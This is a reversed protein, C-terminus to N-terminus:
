GSVTEGVRKLWIERWYPYISRSCFMRYCSLNGGCAVNDLILCAGPLNMMQGTKENIIKEVRRLVRYSGNECFPVMEVDFFLGRNRSGANLTAVIEKKSRVQVLDGPQLNLTQTPTKTGARGRIHPYRRGAWRLAFTNCVALLGYRLFDRFRVNGSTLDRAYFRPDWRDRRRTATTAKLLDTAQCRYRKSAEQDGGEHTAQYLAAVGGPLDPHAPAHDSTTELGNVNEVPDHDSVRTLWAEKWYMLCGAQCGGHAEGGCRLGELHVASDMRRIVPREITDCTKHASKYVRFRKGCYPLMEPMFPLGDLCLRDDLTALIEDVRRVQVWEGAHLNLAHRAPKSESSNTTSQRL